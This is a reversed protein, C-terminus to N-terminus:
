LWLAEAVNATGAGLETQRQRERCQLQESKPSGRRASLLSIDAPYCRGFCRSLLPSCRGAAATTDVAEKTARQVTMGVM